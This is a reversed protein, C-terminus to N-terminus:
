TKRAAVAVPVSGLDETCAGPCHLAFQGDDHGGVDDAVARQHLAVFRARELPELPVPLRDEIRANGRIASADDLQHAVACQHFEAADNGRDITCVINLLRRLRLANCGFGILDAVADANRKAFDNDFAVVNVAVTDIDRGTQLRQRRGATDRYRAGHTILHRAFHRESELIEALVRDLVDLSRYM